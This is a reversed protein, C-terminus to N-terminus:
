RFMIIFSFIFLINMKVERGWSSFVIKYYKKLFFIQYIIKEFISEFSVSENFVRRTFANVLESKILKFIANFDLLSFSPFSSNFYSARNM